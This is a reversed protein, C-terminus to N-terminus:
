RSDVVQMQRPPPEIPTPNALKHLAAVVTYQGPEARVFPAAAGIVSVTVSFVLLIGAVSWTVVHHRKRLWAGAWFLVLPLFVIFWRPGFMAQTWDVRLVIYGAM